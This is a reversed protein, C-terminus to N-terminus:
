HAFDDGKTNFIKERGNSWVTQIEKKRQFEMMQRMHEGVLGKDQSAIELGDAIQKHSLPNKGNDWQHAEVYARNDQAPPKPAGKRKVM